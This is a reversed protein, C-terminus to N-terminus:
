LIHPRFGGILFSYIQRFFNNCNWLYRIKGLPNSKERARYLWLRSKSPIWHINQIYVSAAGAKCRGGMCQLLMTRFYLNRECCKGVEHFPCTKQHGNWSIPLSIPWNTCSSPLIHPRSFNCSQVIVSWHFHLPPCQLVPCQRVAKAPTSM